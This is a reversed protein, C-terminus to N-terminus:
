PYIKGTCCVVVRKSHRVYFLLNMKVLSFAVKDASLIPAPISAVFVILFSKFLFKFSSIISNLEALSVISLILILFGIVGFPPTHSLM